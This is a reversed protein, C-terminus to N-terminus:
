VYTIGDRKEDKWTKNVKKWSIDNSAITLKISEGFVALPVTLVKKNYIILM